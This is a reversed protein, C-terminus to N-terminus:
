GLMEKTLWSLVHVEAASRLAFGGTPITSQILLIAKKESNVPFCSVNRVRSVAHLVEHIATHSAGHTFGLQDGYCNSRTPHERQSVVRSPKARNEMLGFCTSRKRRRKVTAPALM